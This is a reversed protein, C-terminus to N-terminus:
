EEEELYREKLINIHHKEHGAMIFALVLPSFKVGSAVGFQEWMDQTFHQLLHITASRVARYEAILSKPSRKNANSNPVFDDQDFGPLPTMDGRSIRLARYAFVRETDIIHLLVEKITWKEPAYAYEWADKEIGGFFASTQLDAIKLVTLVDDGKVQSVYDQYYEPIEEVKPRRTYEQM